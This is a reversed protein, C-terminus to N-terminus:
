SYYFPLKKIRFMNTMVSFETVYFVTFVSCSYFRHSLVDTEYTRQRKIYRVCGPKRSVSSSYFGLNPVLLAEPPQILLGREDKGHRQYGARAEVAEPTSISREPSM